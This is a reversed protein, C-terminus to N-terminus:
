CTLSSADRCLFAFPAITYICHLVHKGVYHTHYASAFGTTLYSSRLFEINCLTMISKICTVIVM